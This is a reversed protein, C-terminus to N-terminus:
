YSEHITKYDYIEKKSFWLAIERKATESSDSAHVLNRLVREKTNAVEYSEIMAFDGRITGPSAQRPETHGIMKRIIEIAHPGEIITAIVPGERLFEMNWKQILKGFELPDKYPFPKGDKENATKTKEYVKKAWEEDLFYHNKALEEDAWLMKVAILKLGADEFRQIIKGILGRRVGDPKILVLTKETAM